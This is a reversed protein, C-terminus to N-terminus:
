SDIYALLAVLVYGLLSIAVLTPIVVDRERPKPGQKQEQSSSLDVNNTENTISSNRNENEPLAASYIHHRNLSVSCLHVNPMCM